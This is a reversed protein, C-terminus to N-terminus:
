PSFNSYTKLDTIATSHRASPAIVRPDFVAKKSRAPLKMMREVVEYAIGIAPCRNDPRRVTLGPGNQIPLAPNM